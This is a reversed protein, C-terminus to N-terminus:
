QGLMGAGSMSAVRLSQGALTQMRYAVEQGDIMVIITNGGAALNGGGSFPLGVGGLGGPDFPADGRPVTRGGGRDLKRAADNLDANKLVKTIAAAYDAEYMSTGVMDQVKRRQEETLSLFVAQWDTGAPTPATDGVRLSATPTTPGTPHGGGYGGVNPIEGNTHIEFNIDYTGEISKAKEGLSTIDGEAALLKEHLTELSATNINVAREEGFVADANKDFDTFLKTADDITIGLAEAINEIASTDTEKGLEVQVKAYDILLRAAEERADQMAIAAQGPTTEEAAIKEALRNQIGELEKTFNRGGSAMFFQIDAIFQTLPSGVDQNLTDALEEVKPTLDHLKETAEASKENVLALRDAFKESSVYAKYTNEAQLDLAQAAYFVNEAWAQTVYDASTVANLLRTTEQEQERTAQAAEIQKQALNGFLPDLVAIVPGAVGLTQLYEEWTLNNTVAAEMQTQMADRLSMFGDAIPLLGEALFGAAADKADDLMMEMRALSDGSAEVNGGVQEIVAAGQALIDNLIEQKTGTDEVLIGYPKLGRVNGTEIARTVADFIEATSGLTPNLKFIARSITALQPAANALEKGYAGTEGTLLRIASAMYNADDVTDGFAEGLDEALNGAYGEAKSLRELSAATDKLMAGEKTLDFANKFVGGIIQAGEQVLDLKSKLETWTGAFGKVNQAAQSTDAKININITTDM